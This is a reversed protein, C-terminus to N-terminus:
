QVGGASEVLCLIYYLDPNLADLASKWDAEHETRTEVIIVDKGLSALAAAAAYAVLLPECSVIVACTCRKAFDRLSDQHFARPGKAEHMDDGILCITPRDTPPDFPEEGQPVMCLAVGADRVALMIPRMYAPLHDITATIRSGPVSVSQFNPDSTIHATM